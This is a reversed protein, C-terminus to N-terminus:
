TTLAGTESISVVVVNDADVIVLVTVGETKVSVLVRVTVGEAMTVVTVEVKM